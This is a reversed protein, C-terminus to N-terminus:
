DWIAPRREHWPRARELQGALRLLLDEEGFRAAFQVGIPLGDAGQHLPLSIAPQGTANFAPTFPVYDLLEAFAADVDTARSDITGLRVPPAGLTPTLWVDHQEFFAAIQRSAIQLSAIALQFSSASIERGREYMAWTLPEVDGEAVPRGAGMGLVDLQMALGGWWLTLFADTLSAQDIPLPAEVVEHGLEDLLRATSEVAGVCQPDIPGGELTQTWMAVRLRGPERSVEELYPRAQPPAWYPDGPAPGATLDLAAATDRVSRSVVHEAVLGALADGLVPGLPNRARTPKLGVLGCCAAPIRISGGGDNAHAIPVIGAAVCAASGGSSGGTSHEPNWPNRAPGYLLPETTPLLGFEPANTKGLPILGGRKYRTVLESDFVGPTDPVFASGSRTPAGVCNALLDKLLMPVGRLASHEAGKKTDVDSALSRASDFMEFVVANLRPNHREIREVAAEVLETASVDGKAVLEALGVGDYEAYDKFSM